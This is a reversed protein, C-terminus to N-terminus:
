SSQSFPLTTQRNFAMNMPKHFSSLPSTLQTPSSVSGSVNYNVASAPMPGLNMQIMGTNLNALENMSPPQPKDNKHSLALNDVDINVPGANSWTNQKNQM